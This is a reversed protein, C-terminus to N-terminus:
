DSDYAIRVHVLSAVLFPLVQLFKEPYHEFFPFILRLEEKAPLSKVFHPPLMAFNIDGTPLGAAVRGCQADSGSAGEQTFYRRTGTLHEGGIELVISVTIEDVDDLSHCRIDAGTGTKCM